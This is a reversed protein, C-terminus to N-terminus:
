AGLFWRPSFLKTTQKKSLILDNNMYYALSLCLLASTWHDAGKKGGKETLTRYVIEGTVTKNYTMRELETILELDKISYVIRHNNSYEQLVTTAFPKTKEKIDKGESDKGFTLNAGFSVPYLRKNYDKHLYEKDDMLHQVVSMGSNGEDIGILIPEYKSDLKDILKEQVPYSVKNLQIRAHIKIRGYEDLYGVIFASPDVYGLDMGMIAKYKKNPLGPLMSLKDVYASLNSSLTLGDLVINYVPYDEILFLSRDFLAFVPKGHRGLILHIYDDSDEGGYQEIAHLRDKETFRPNQIAEVRHKSYDSDEMDCYYCVSKERRGDPVGSVIRRFGSIWTNLTPQSETWAGWPYFSSEDYIEFCTHLGVVNAGTGTQGAIRCVLLSLNLLHITHATANIGSRSDIFNKLFSNSRLSRVLKNFVPDLHVSSPVTYVVYEPEPFINNILLWLIIWCIAESKGLSRGCCLSVYSSFDLVFEDQYITLEFPEENELKDINNVFETFFVPNICIEYLALDEYTPKEILPM